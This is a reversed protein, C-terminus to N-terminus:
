FYTKKFEEGIQLWIQMYSPSTFPHDLILFGESYSGVYHVNYDSTFLSHYYAKPDSLLAIRAVGDSRSVYNEASSFGDRHIITASGFTYVKIMKQEEPTLLKRAAETDSGGLSHAYHVITGGSEPGGMENILTKWTNALLEAYASVFGTLKSQFCLFMDRTWGETPHFIYHINVGGHSKSLMRINEKYYDHLNGIGNIFTVRVKDNIEGNGYVGYHPEENYYASMALYLKGLINELFNANRQFKKYQLLLYDYLNEQSKINEFTYTNFFSFLHILSLPNNGLFTYPQTIFEKLFPSYYKDGFISLKTEKDQRKSLFGWPNETSALLGGFRDYIWQEGYATYRYFEKIAKTDFDVLCVINGRHDHIPAFIKGKLEISVTSGIEECLGSGLVRLEYISDNEDTSGIEKEEVYFYNWSNKKVWSELQFDWYYQQKIIRRNFADYIYNFCEKEPRIVKILRDLADYVLQYEGNKCSIIALSGNEDYVTDLTSKIRGLEDYEYQKEFIGREDIVRDKSDYSFFSENSRPFDSLIQSIPRGMKDYTCEESWYPTKVAICLNTDDFENVIKGLKGIMNSSQIIGKETYKINGTSYLAMGSSNKRVINKLFNEEYEYSIVSNDPLLVELIQGKGDRQIKVELGNGFVEGILLGKEYLRHTSFNHIQDEIFIPEDKKNYTFSYDVTDDSSFVHILRGNNDYQLHIIVGNPKEISQILKQNNYIVRDLPNVRPSLNKAEASLSSYFFCFLLSFLYLM